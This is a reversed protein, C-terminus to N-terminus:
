KESIDLLKEFLPFLFDWFGNLFNKSLYYTKESHIYGNLVDLSYQNSENLLKNVIKKSEGSLKNSKLYELRRKLIIDRFDTEYYKKMDETLGETEIYYLVALDLFIRLSAAVVNKYTLSIRKMEDFLGLLKANDTNLNYIPLILNKRDLNGRLFQSTASLSLKKSDISKDENVDKNPIENTISIPNSDIKNETFTVSPLSNFIGDLDDKTFRTNIKDEDNNVIRKILAAFAIYFSEIDSVIDVEIGNYEVGWKERFEAFNFFRELVSIPFKYSAANKYEEDTLLSKVEEIKVFDKIKLIRIFGELESQTLKTISELKSIDGEYKEYLTMLWRQQQVRTWRRQLSSSSNRQNIYWEADEFTPAVVVPIKEITTLNIRNSAKRIFSRISKPAKNPNRLLKLAILRRNGEAVYYKQNAEDKWVVVPDFTIFGDNVISNVLNFFAARDADERTIDEAYDSLTLHSEEPNLRPNDAWLRLQDVARPTKNSLWYYKKEM